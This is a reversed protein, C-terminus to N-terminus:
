YAYRDPLVGGLFSMVHVMELGSARGPLERVDDNDAVREDVDDSRGLTCAFVGAPGGGVDGIPKAPESDAGPQQGGNAVVLAAGGDLPVQV